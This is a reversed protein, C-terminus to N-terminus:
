RKILDVLHRLPGADGVAILARKTGRLHPRLAPERLGVAPATPDPEFYALGCASVRDGAQLLAQRFVFRKRFFLGDTQVGARELVGYCDQPLESWDHEWDIGLLVAGEITAKGSEDAIVFPGCDERRIVNTSAHQGAMRVIELRFGICPRKGIPATMTTGLASVTGTIRAPVGDKIQAIPLSKMQRLARWARSRPRSSWEIVMAIALGAGLIIPLFTEM